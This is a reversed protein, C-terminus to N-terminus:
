AAWPLERMLEGMDVTRFSSFRHVLQSEAGAAIAINVLRMLHGRLRQAMEEAEEESPPVDDLATAVDDLLADADFAQWTQLKVLVHVLEEGSLPPTWQPVSPRQVTSLATM